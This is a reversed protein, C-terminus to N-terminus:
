NFLWDFKTTKKSSNKYTWYMLLRAIGEGYGCLLSNKYINSRISQEINQNDKEWISNYLRKTIQLNDKSKEKELWYMLDIKEKLGMMSPNIDKQASNIILFSIEQLTTDKLRLAHLYLIIGTLYDNIFVGENYLQSFRNCVSQLIDKDYLCEKNDLWYLQCLFTRFREQIYFRFRNDNDLSKINVFLKSFQNFIQEIFSITLSIEKQTKRNQLSTIYTLIRIQLLDVKKEKYTFELNKNIWKRKEDFMEEFSIQIYPHNDIIHLLFFGIGSLGTEFLVSKTRTLLSEQMLEFAHDALREDQFFSALEFLCLSLGSKGNYLGYSDLSYANLLIFDTLKKIIPQDICVDIDKM